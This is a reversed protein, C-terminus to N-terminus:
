YKKIIVPIKISDDNEPLGSPNEKRLILTGKNSYTEPDTTFTLEAKFPVFDNTMWEGEATAIGQAIIKGDWDVLEVPFSAEFFWYGRAEGTVMLPSQIESNPLPVSVHILDNNKVEEKIESNIENQVQIQVESVPAKQVLKRNVFFCIIVLLSIFVFLAIFKKM